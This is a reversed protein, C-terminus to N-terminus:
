AAKRAVPTYGACGWAAWQAAERSAWDHHRKTASWAAGNRRQGRLWRQLRMVARANRSRRAGYRNRPRNYDAM